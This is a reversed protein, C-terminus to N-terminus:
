PQHHPLYTGLLKLGSGHHSDNAIWSGSPAHREYDDRNVIRAEKVNGFGACARRRSSTFPCYLM